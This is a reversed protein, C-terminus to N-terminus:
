LIFGLKEKVESLTKQATNRAIEAGDALITRLFVEDQRFANYKKQLPEATAIWADILATKLTGYGQGAYNQVLEDPTKDTLASLIDILNKLGPQEDHYAIHAKSDTVARSIKKKILDPSDLLYLVNNQNDDSKSMKKEPNQLGMIRKVTHHMIPKPITFTQGWHHNFRQAINRTLELHQRQDEGIPVVQPQYLLIDAAQLAPYSWLGANINDKFRASKDKFQTMRNLEGAMTYCSLIWALETHEPVHSQLFITTEKPNLGCALFIALMDYCQKKMTQPDHPVTITHLDALFCYCRYASQMSEWQSLAGLYNGLTCQGSPQIGSLLVNKNKKM